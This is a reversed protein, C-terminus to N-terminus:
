KPHVAPNAQPICLLSGYTGHRVQAGGQLLSSTLVLLPLLLLVLLLVLLLLLLVLPLALLVVLLSVLLLLLLLLQDEGQHRLAAYGQRRYGRRQRHDSSRLIAPSISVHPACLEESSHERVKVGIAADNDITKEYKFTKFSTQPPRLTKAPCHLCHLLWALAPLPV